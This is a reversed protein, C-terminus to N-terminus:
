SIPAPPLACRASARKSSTAPQKRVGAPPELPPLGELNPREMVLQPLDASM